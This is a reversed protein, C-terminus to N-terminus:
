FPLPQGQCNMGREQCGSEIRCRDCVPGDGSACQTVCQDRVCVLAEFFCSLCEMPAQALAPSANTVCALFMPRLVEDGLLLTELTLTEVGCRQTIMSITGNCMAAGTQYSCKQSAAASLEPETVGCYFGYCAEGNRPTASSCNARLASGKIRSAPTDSADLAGAENVGPTADYSSGSADLSGGGLGSIQSGDRPELPLTADSLLPGTGADVSCPESALATLGPDNDFADSSVCATALIGCALGCLLKIPADSM